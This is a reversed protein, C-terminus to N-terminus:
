GFFRKIEIEAAALDESGHVVNRMVDTGFEARITGPAANAPNTVGIIERMKAVVNEGVVIMGTVPGSTMFELIEPFFPKEVLFDYHDEVLEKTLTFVKENEIVFGADTIRQKVAAAVGEKAMADPKIMIYTKEMVSNYM